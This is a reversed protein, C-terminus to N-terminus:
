RPQVGEHYTSQAINGRQKDKYPVIAAFGLNPNVPLDLTAAIVASNLVSQPDASQLLYNSNVCSLVSSIFGPAKKGLIEQFRNKVSDNSLMTKLQTISTAAM